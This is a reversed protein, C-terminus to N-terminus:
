NQMWINTIHCPTAFTPLQRINYWHSPVRRSRLKALQILPHLQAELLAGINSWKTNPVRTCWLSKLHSIVPPSYDIHPFPIQHKVVDVVRIQDMTSHLTTIVLHASLSSVPRHIHTSHSFYTVIAREDQVTQIM